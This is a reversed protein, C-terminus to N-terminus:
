GTYLAVRRVSSQRWPSGKRTTIGLENLRDAKAQQTSYGLQHLEKLLSQIRSNFAVANAKRVKISAPIATTKIRPNGIRFDPNKEKLIRITTAVRQGLVKSENASVALLLNVLFEDPERWGLQAIRISSLSSKIKSYFSYSRSLRDLRYVLLYCDNKLAYALAKAFVPRNDDTGSASEVFVKEVESGNVNAFDILVSKQVDISNTQADRSSTKKTSRRCYLVSNKTDTMDVSVLLSNSVLSHYVDPSM